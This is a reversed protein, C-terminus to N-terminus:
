RGQDREVNVLAACGTELAAGSAAGSADAKAQAKGKDDRITKWAHYMIYATSATNAFLVTLAAGTTGLSKIAPYVALMAVAFGLAFARFIVDTRQTAYFFFVWVERFFAIAYTLGYLRLIPAFQEYGAGFALRLSTEAPLSVLLIFGWVVVGLIRTTRTLYAQLHGIGGAAFARSAGGPVFNELAVWIFHTVGILYQGARLGGIAQDSLAAGLGLAIAQDQGFTLILMLALWQAFPLHRSWVTRLIPQRVRAGRLHLWLPVLATLGSIALASLASTVDIHYGRRWLVLMAALFLAYRGADMYFAQWGIRKAFLMRRVTYLLNQTVTYAGASLIFALPAGGDRFAYIAFAALAVGCGAVISLVASWAMVAAYYNPSRRVRLGSLAMMPAVVFCGQLSQAFMQLIFVIALKGFETIGLLRAVGIGILFTMGSVLVQDGLALLVELQGPNAFKAYLRSVLGAGFPKEPTQDIM